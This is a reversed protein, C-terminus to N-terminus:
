ELMFSKVKQLEPQSVLSQAVNELTENLVHTLAATVAEAQKTPMGEAELSKVQEM